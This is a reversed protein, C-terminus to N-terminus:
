IKWFFATIATGGHAIEEGFQVAEEAVEGDPEEAEDAGFDAVAACAATEAAAEDQGPASSDVEEAEVVGENGNGLVLRAQGIPV